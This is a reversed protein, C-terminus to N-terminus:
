AASHKVTRTRAVRVMHGAYPVNVSMFQGFRMIGRTPGDFSFLEAAFEVALSYAGLTLWMPFFSAGNLDLILFYPITMMLSTCSVVLLQLALRSVAYAPPAYLHTKMERQQHSWAAITRMIEPIQM